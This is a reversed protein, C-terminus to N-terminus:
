LGVMKTAKYKDNSRIKAHFHAGISPKAEVLEKHEKAPVDSFFYKTGSKFEVVLVSSEADYGVRMINSSKVEELEIEEPQM